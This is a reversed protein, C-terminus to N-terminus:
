ILFDTLDENSFIEEKSKNMLKVLDDRGANYKRVALNQMRKDLEGIKKEYAENESELKEIRKKNLYTSENYTSRLRV